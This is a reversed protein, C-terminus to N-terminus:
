LKTLTGRGDEDFALLYTGGRPIDWHDLSTDVPYGLQEAGDSRFLAYATATVVLDKQRPSCPVSYAWYAWGDIVLGFGVFVQTTSDHSPILWGDQGHRVYLDSGLRLAFSDEDGTYPYAAQNPDQSGEELSAAMWVLVDAHGLDMRVETSVDQFAAVRATGASGSASGLFTLVLEFSSPLASTIHVVTDPADVNPIVVRHPKFARIDDPWPRAPARPATDSATM